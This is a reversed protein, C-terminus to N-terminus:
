PPLIVVGSLRVTITMSYEPCVQRNGLRRVAKFDIVGTVIDRGSFRASM